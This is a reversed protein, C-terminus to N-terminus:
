LEVEYERVDVEDEETDEDETEDIVDDVPTAEAAEPYPTPASPIVVTVYGGGVQVASLVFM